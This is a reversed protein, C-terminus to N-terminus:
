PNMPSEFANMRLLFHGEGIMDGVGGHDYYDYEGGQDYSHTLRELGESTPDAALAEEPVYGHTLRDFPETM